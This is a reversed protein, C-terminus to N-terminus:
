ELLFIDASISINFHSNHKTKLTSKSTLQIQYAKESSQICIIMNRKWKLNGKGREMNEVYVSMHWAGAELVATQWVANIDLYMPKSALCPGLLYSWPYFHKVCLRVHVWDQLGCPSLIREWLKDEPKWMCAHLPVRAWLCVCCMCFLTVFFLYNSCLVDTVSVYFANGIPFHANLLHSDVWEILVVVTFDILVIVRNTTAKRM